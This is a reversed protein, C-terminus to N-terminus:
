FVAMALLAYFCEQSGLCIITSMVMFYGYGYFNSVFFIQYHYKSQELWGSM